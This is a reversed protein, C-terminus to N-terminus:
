TTTLLWMDQLSCLPKEYIVLNGRNFNHTSKSFKNSWLRTFHSPPAERWYTWINHKTRNRIAVDWTVKPILLKLLTANTNNAGRKALTNAKENGLYGSLSPIWRILVQNNGGLKKLALVADLTTKSEIKTNELAM